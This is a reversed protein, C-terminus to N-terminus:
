FISFFVILPLERANTGNETTVAFWAEIAEIMALTARTQHLVVFRLLERDPYQSAM